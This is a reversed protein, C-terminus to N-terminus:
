RGHTRHVVLQWGALVAALVTVAAAVAAVSASLSVRLDLLGAGLAAAAVVAYICAIFAATVEGREGEPALENLEEQASLFAIGHGVGAALGGAVLVNLSHLSSALALGVVGAAREEGRSPSANGGGGPRDRRARRSVAAPTAAAGMARARRGRGAGRRERRDARPGRVDGRAAPRRPSRARRSGGDSRRQGDGRGAGAPAAFLWATGRALAFVTVGGGGGRGAGALIVPRRGFRDSLRGFVILAPVLVAAYTGFVATLVLTSFRYREAYVAYLPTALNATAMVAFWGSWVIPVPENM